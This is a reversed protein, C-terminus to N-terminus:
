SMFKAVEGCDRSVVKAEGDREITEGAVEGVRSGAVEGHVPWGLRKDTLNGRWWSGRGRCM